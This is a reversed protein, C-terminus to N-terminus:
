VLPRLIMESKERTTSLLPAGIAELEGMKKETPVVVEVVVLKAQFKMKDQCISLEDHAQYPPPDSMAVSVSDPPECCILGLLIIRARTRPIAMITANEDCEDDEGDAEYEADDDDAASANRVGDGEDEDDPLKPIRLARRRCRRCWMVVLNCASDVMMSVVVVRRIIAPLPAVAVDNNAAHHHFM